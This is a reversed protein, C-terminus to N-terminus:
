SDRPQSPAVELLCNVKQWETELIEQYENGVESSHFASDVKSGGLPKSGPVGPNPIRRELWQAMTSCWPKLLSFFLVEFVTKRAPHKAYATRETRADEHAHAIALM